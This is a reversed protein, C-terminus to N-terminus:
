SRLERIAAKPKLRLAVFPPLANGYLDLASREDDIDIPETLIYDAACTETSHAPMLRPYQGLLVITADPLTDKAVRCLQAVSEFWYSCLSTIWIQTPPRQGSARRRLLWDALTSYPLGFRR